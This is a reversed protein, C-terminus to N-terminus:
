FFLIFFAIFFLPKSGLKGQLELSRAIDSQEKHGYHEVQAGGRTEGKDKWVM